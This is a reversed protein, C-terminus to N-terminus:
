FTRFDANLIDILGVLINRDVNHRNRAREAMDWCGGCLEM